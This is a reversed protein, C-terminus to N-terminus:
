TRQLTRSVLSHVEWVNAGSSGVHKRKDDSYKGAGLKIPMNASWQKSLLCRIVMDMFQAVQLRAMPVQMGKELLPVASQKSPLEDSLTPESRRIGM